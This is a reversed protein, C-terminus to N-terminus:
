VRPERQDRGSPSLACHHVTTCEDEFIQGGSTMRDALDQAMEVARQAKESPGSDAGDTSMQVAGAGVVGFPLSPTLAAVQESMPLRSVAERFHAHGDSGREPAVERMPPASTQEQDTSM